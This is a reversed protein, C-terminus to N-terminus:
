EFSEEKYKDLEQKIINIKGKVKNLEAYCDKAIAVGEEYLAVGDSIGLEPNEMSTTIEQLRKLKEELM